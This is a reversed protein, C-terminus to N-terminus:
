GAFFNAIDGEEIYTANKYEPGHSYYGIKIGLKKLWYLNADILNHSVRQQPYLWLGNQIEESAARHEGLANDCFLLMLKKVNFKYSLIISACIPNRYDDIFYDSESKQGGYYNDVTPNYTYTLGNFKDIFEPCTRISALLTPFINSKESLLEMCESYPNNVVYYGMKRNNKWQRLVENVGIITVDGPLKEILQQSKNFKFGDSVIVVKQHVFSETDIRQLMKSHNQTENDLMVVMDPENILNNIDIAHVTKKAFNRVWLGSGAYYYDNKNRHNKIM